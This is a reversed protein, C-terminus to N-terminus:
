AASATAPAVAVANKGSFKVAYLAADAARLLGEPGMAHEPYTAVGISATVAAIDVDALGDPVPCAEIARRIAEAVARADATATGPMLVVFEDGGFRAAVDGPRLCAAILRGVTAITRSGVLHGFRDVV